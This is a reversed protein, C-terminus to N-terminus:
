NNQDNGVDKVKLYEAEIRSRLIYDIEHRANLYVMSHADRATVNTEEGTQPDVLNSTIVITLDLLEPTRPSPPKISVFATFHYRGCEYKNEFCVQDVVKLIKLLENHVNEGRGVRERIETIREHIDETKIM